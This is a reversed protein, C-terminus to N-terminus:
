GYKAEGFLMCQLAIDGTGADENEAIFDAFHKPYKTAMIELGKKVVELNLTYAKLNEPNDNEVDLDNPDLKDLLM